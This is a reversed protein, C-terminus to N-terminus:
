IIFVVISLVPKRDKNRKNRGKKRSNASAVIATHMPLLKLVGWDPKSAILATAKVFLAVVGCNFLLVFSFTEGISPIQLVIHAM